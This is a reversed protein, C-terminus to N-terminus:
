LVVHWVEMSLLCLAMQLMVLEQLPLSAQCQDQCAWRGCQLQPHLQPLLLRYVGSLWPPM